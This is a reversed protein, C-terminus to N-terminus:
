KPLNAVNNFFLLKTLLCILVQSIFVFLIIGRSVRLYRIKEEETDFKLTTEKINAEATAKPIPPQIQETQQNQPKTEPVQQTQNFVFARIQEIKEEFSKVTKNQETLNKLERDNTMRVLVQQHM